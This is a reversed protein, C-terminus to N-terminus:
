GYSEGMCVHKCVSSLEKWFTNRSLDAFDIEKIWSSVTFGPEKKHPQSLRLELEQEVTHLLGTERSFEIYHFGQVGM